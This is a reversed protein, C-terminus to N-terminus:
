AFACPLFRAMAAWCSVAVTIGSRGLAVGSLAPQFPRGRARVSDAGARQRHVRSTGRSPFGLPAEVM